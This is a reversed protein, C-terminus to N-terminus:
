NEKCYKCLIECSVFCKSNFNMYFKSQLEFLKPLKFNM